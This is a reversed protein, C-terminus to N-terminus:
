RLLRIQASNQYKNLVSRHQKEGSFWFRGHFGSEASNDFNKVPLFFFDRWSKVIKEGATDNKKHAINCFKRSHAHTQKQLASFQNKRYLWWRSNSTKNKNMCLLRIESASKINKKVPQIYLLCNQFNTFTLDFIESRLVKKLNAASSLVQFQASVQNVYFRLM